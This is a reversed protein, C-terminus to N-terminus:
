TAIIGLRPVYPCYNFDYVSELTTQSPLQSDEMFHIMYGPAEFEWLPKLPRPMFISCVDISEHVIQIDLFTEERM